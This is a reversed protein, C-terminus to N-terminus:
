KSLMKKVAEVAAQKEASKKSAGKGRGLVNGKIKVEVLFEKKHEPGSEFVVTYHPLVKFKKQVLEQLCSKYDENLFDKKIDIYSLIFKSAVKLGQDLYIAGVLAEWTNALISGRERGGSEIEGVSLYIFKGLEIDKAYSLVTKGSVLTSKLKSLEGEDYAPFKRYLFDAIVMNLISDGLFELRENYNKLGKEYAYSKHTLSLKLFSKDKFIVKIKEELVSLKEM